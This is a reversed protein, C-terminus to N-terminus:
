RLTEGRKFWVRLPVAGEGLAEELAYVVALAVELRPRVLDAHHHLSRVVRFVRSGELDDFRAVLEQLQPSFASLFFALVLM